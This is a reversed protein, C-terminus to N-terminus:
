EQHDGRAAPVGRLRPIVHQGFLRIAELVREPALGPWQFRVIPYTVGAAGYRHLEAVCDEPDGVVFRGQVLQEFPVDMKDAAPLIRDQGWGVVTQYKHELHPRCERWAAERDAAVYVERNMAVPGPARGLEVCRTRYAAVLERITGLTSRGSLALGEGRAAARRAAQVNNGGIWFPPHPQQVPRNTLVADRLACDAREFTVAEGRLLARVVQFNDLFRRLRQGPAVGFAAFEVDRYGLAVGVILRGHTLADLTALQEALHLPNHLPLLLASTGVDLGRADPCLRALLLLGNLFRFPTGLYREGVFVGDFGVERALRAQEAYEDIRLALPEEIGHQAPLWLGFRM